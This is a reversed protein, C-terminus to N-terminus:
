DLNTPQAGSAAPNGRSAAPAAPARARARPEPRLMSAPAAPRFGTDVVAAAAASTSTSSGLIAAVRHLTSARNRQHEAVQALLAAEGRKLESLTAQAEELARKQLQLQLLQPVLGSARASATDIGGTLKAATPDTEPAPAGGGHKARHDSLGATLILVDTQAQSMEHHLGAHQSQVLARAAELQRGLADLQELGTLEGVAQWATRVHSPEGTGGAATVATTTM